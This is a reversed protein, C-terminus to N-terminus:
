AAFITTKDWLPLYIYSISIREQVVFFSINVQSHAQLM